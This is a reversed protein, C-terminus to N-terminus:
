ARIGPKSPRQEDKGMALTVISVCKRDRLNNVIRRQHETRVREEQTHEQSVFSEFGRVELGHFIKASQEELAAPLLHRERQFPLHRVVIHETSHIRLAALDCHVL